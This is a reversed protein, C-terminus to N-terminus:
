THRLALLRLQSRLVKAQRCVCDQKSLELVGCLGWMANAHKCTLKSGLKWAGKQM